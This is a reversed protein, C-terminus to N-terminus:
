SLRTALGVTTLLNKVKPEKSWSLALMEVSNNNLISDTITKQIKGLLALGGDLHKPNQATAIAPDDDALKKREDWQDALWDSNVDKRNHKALFPTRLIRFLNHASKCYM